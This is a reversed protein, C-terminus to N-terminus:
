ASSVAVPSTVPRGYISRGQQRYIGVSSLANWTQDAVSEMWEAVVLALNEAKLWYIRYTAYAEPPVELKNIRILGREIYRERERFLYAILGQPLNIRCSEVLLRCEKSWFWWQKPILAEWMGGEYIAVDSSGKTLYKGLYARVSKKVQQVNGAAELFPEWQEERLMRVGCRYLASKIVGDLEARSLLWAGRHHHRGKFVVHLHPAPIGTKKTRKTQIEAVGVLTPDMGKRILLQRLRDRVQDQFKAWGAGWLLHMLAPTPLTITWFSLLARRPELLALADSVNLRGPAPLGQFGHRRPRHSNRAMSLGLPESAKPAEARAPDAAWIRNFVGAEKLLEFDSPEPKWTGGLLAPQFTTM